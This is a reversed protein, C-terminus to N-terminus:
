LRQKSLERLCMLSAVVKGAILLIKSSLLSIASPNNRRRRLESVAPNPQEKREALDM